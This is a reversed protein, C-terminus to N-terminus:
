VALKLSCRLRDKLIHKLIAIVETEPTGDELLEQSFVNMELRDEIPFRNIITQIM